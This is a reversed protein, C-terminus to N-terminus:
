YPDWPLYTVGTATVRMLVAGCTSAGYSGYGTGFTVRIDVGCRAKAGPPHYTHYPPGHASLSAHHQKGLGIFLRSNALWPVTCYLVICYRLAM